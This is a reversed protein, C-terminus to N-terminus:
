LKKVLPFRRGLGFAKTSVRIVPAAQYRKFENHHLLKYVKSVVVSDYGEAVIEDISKQEEIMKFLLRDLLDYEPLSDSDKQNPRLEASPAKTLIHLPIREGNRNIYRALEYVQTKYVDGLVSLAGCMDGYLTGYGVAMESKNSTNLLIHGHKNSYAMLFLARLRAQINEETIDYPKSHFIPQLYKETASFIPEISLIDYSIQNRQCLDVADRISHDSSFRSPMLLCHVNEKGIAEAALIAVVASDIGGSLGIVAWNFHNKSFFDSIGLILAQYISEIPEQQYVHSDNLNNLNIIATQEKFFPLHVMGNTHVVCSGGDFVLDTNAGIQNVYILPCNLEKQAEKIVQYRYAIQTYSYPSAAINILIDPRLKKYEQITDYHYYPKGPAPHTDTKVTWLDECITIAVKKNKVNIILPNYSPEFYRAEDFVDYTPLLAKYYRHTIQGNELVFATNFLRKGDGKNIDVGGVIAIIDKCEKAIVSIYHLSQEIWKDSFLLDYPPYGPLALESFVAIDAGQKKANHIEGIIKASNGELNGVTYNLQCLAITLM